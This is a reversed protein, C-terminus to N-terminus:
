TENSAEKMQTVEPETFILVKGSDWDFGVGIAKIHVTPSPGVVSHDVVVIEVSLDNESQWQISELRRTVENLTM